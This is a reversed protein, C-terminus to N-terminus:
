FGLTDLVFERVQHISRKSKRLWTKLIIHTNKGILGLNYKELYDKILKRNWHDHYRLPLNKEKWAGNDNHVVEIYYGYLNERVEPDVVQMILVDPNNEDQSKYDGWKIFPPFSRSM